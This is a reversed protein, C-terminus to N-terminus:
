LERWYEFDKEFTKLVHDSTRPNYYTISDEHTSANLHPLKATINLRDCIHQFDKELREFKGLFDLCSKGQIEWYHYQSDREDHGLIM